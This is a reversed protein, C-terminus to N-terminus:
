VCGKPKPLGAIYSMKKAPKKPFLEFQLKTPFGGVSQVRRTTATEGQQAFDARLFRLVAWHQDTLDVGIASALAKGIEEDWENPDTMFGEADIQVERGNITTTPM